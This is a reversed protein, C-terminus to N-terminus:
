ETLRICRVGFGDLICYGSSDSLIAIKHGKPPNTVFSTTTAYIGLSKGLREYLLSYDRCDGGHTKITGFDSNRSDPTKTFNYFTLVNDRLCYATAFLDLNRCDSVIDAETVPVTKFSPFGTVTFHITLAVGMIFSMVSFFIIWVNAEKV